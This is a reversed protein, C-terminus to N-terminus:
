SKRALAIGANRASLRGFCAGIVRAVEARASHTLIREIVRRACKALLNEGGPLPRDSTAVVGLEIGAIGALRSGPNEGNGVM